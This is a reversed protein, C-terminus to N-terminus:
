GCLIRVPAAVLDMGDLLLVADRRERLALFALVVGEADAVEVEIEAASPMAM